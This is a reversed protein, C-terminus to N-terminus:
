VWKPSYPITIGDRWIKKSAFHHPKQWTILFVHELCVLDQEYTFALENKPSIVCIM